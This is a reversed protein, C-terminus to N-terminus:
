ADEVIIRVRVRRLNTTPPLTERPEPEGTPSLIVRGMAILKELGENGIDQHVDHTYIM